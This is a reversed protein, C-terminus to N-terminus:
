SKAKRENHVECELVFDGDSINHETVYAQLYGLTYIEQEKPNDYEVPVFVVNERLKYVLYDKM